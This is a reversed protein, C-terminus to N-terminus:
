ETGAIPELDYVQCRMGRNSLPVPPSARKIWRKRFWYDLTCIDVFDIVPLDGRFALVGYEGKKPFIPGFVPCVPRHTTYYDVAWADLKEDVKLSGAYVHLM